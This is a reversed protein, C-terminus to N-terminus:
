RGASGSSAGRSAFRAWLARSVAEDIDAPHPPVPTAQLATFAAIEPDDANATLWASGALDRAALVLSRLLADVIAPLGDNGSALAAECARLQKLLVTARSRILSGQAHQRIYDAAIRTQPLATVTM